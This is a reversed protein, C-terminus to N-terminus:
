YRYENEMEQADEEEHVENECYLVASCKGVEKRRYKVSREVVVWVYIWHVLKGHCSVAWLV